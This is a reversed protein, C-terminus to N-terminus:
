EERSAVIMRLTTRLDEVRKTGLERTWGEEVGHV